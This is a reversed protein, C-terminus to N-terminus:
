VTLGKRFNVQIEKPAWKPFVGLIVESSFFPCYLLRIIEWLQVIHVLDCFYTLKVCFQMNVWWRNPDCPEVNSLSKKRYDTLLPKTLCQVYDTLVNWPCQPSQRVYNINIHVTNGKTTSNGEKVKLNKMIPILFLPEPENQGLPLLSIPWVLGLQHNVLSLPTHNKNSIKIKFPLAITAM